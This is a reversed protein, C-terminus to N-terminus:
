DALHLKETFGIDQLMEYAQIGMKSKPQSKVVEILEKVAKKYDKEAINIKGTLFISRDRLLAFELALQRELEAQARASPLKNLTKYLNIHAETSDILWQRLPPLAAQAANLQKQDILQEVHDLRNTADALGLPNNPDVLRVKVVPPNNEDIEPEEIKANPEPPQSILPPRKPREQQQPKGAPMESDPNQLSEASNDEEADEEQNSQPGFLKKFTGKLKETMDGQQAPGKHESPPVPGVQAMALGAISLLATSIVVAMVQQKMRNM